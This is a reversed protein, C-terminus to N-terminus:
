EEYSCDFVDNIAILALKCAAADMDYATKASVIVSNNSIEILNKDQNDRLWIIPYSITSNEISLIPVESQNVAPETYVVGTKVLLSSFTKFLEHTSLGLEAPSTPDVLIFVTNAMPNMILQKFETETSDMPFSNCDTINARFPVLTKACRYYNAAIEPEKLIQDGFDFFGLFLMGFILLLLIVVISISLVSKDLKM